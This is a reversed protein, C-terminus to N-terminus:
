SRDLVRTMVVDTGQACRNIELSDMAAQMIRLGRGRHQGRPPRWRGQDSVSVRIADPTHEARIRFRGRGPGYAHEIANAGAESV